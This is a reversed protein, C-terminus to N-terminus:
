ADGTVRMLATISDAALQLRDRLIHPRDYTERMWADLSGLRAIEDPYADATEFELGELFAGQVRAPHAGLVLGPWELDTAKSTATSGELILRAAAPRIWAAGATADLRRGAVTSLARNTIAEPFSQAVPHTGLARESRGLCVYWADPHDLSMRDALAALEGPFSRAWHLWRDFDCCFIEEHGSEAATALVQRQGAGAVGSPGLEIQVGAAGMAEIVRTDTNVTAFAYVRGYAALAESHKELSRLLRRAPDHVTTILAPPGILHPEM